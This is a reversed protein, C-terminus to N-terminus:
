GDRGEDQDEDETQAILEFIQGEPLEVNSPFVFQHKTIPCQVQIM